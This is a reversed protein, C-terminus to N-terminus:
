HLKVVDSMQAWKQEMDEVLKFQTRCRDLNHEPRSIKFYTDGNLYDTLFRIGCEFTMIKAGMPLLAIELPTLKGDCGDIFGKACAEFLEMDCSIKSLDKEDEAGTSAGSRIIDGFDNMAVGPMVTDLDIVCIGKKTTNDMMINNIKTDNHTVRIPLKGREILESFCHADAERAMAFAIEEQVEGARNCVDREVAEKFIEFRNVTDHFREITEHLVIADFDSLMSQFRGFAYGTEYMDEATEAREACFAETVFVFCRWYEGNEDVAYPRGDKCSIVNMTERMYNGGYAEIKRKLFSTVNLINEMVEEPKTFINKNMRQLIYKNLIHDKEMVVLYTDNIHGNGYPTCSVFDGELEFNNIIKM